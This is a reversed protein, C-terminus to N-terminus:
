DNGAPKETPDQSDVERSADLAKALGRIAPRGAIRPACGLPNGPTKLMNGTLLVLFFM